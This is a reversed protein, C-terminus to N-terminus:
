AKRATAIWAALVLLDCGTLVLLAFTLLTM